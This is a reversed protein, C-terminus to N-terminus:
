KWYSIKDKNRYYIDRSIEHYYDIINQCNKIGAKNEGEIVNRLWTTPHRDILMCDEFVHGDIRYIARYKIYYYKMNIM